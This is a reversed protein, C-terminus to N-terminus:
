RELLAIRGQLFNRVSEDRELGIAVEYAQRAEDLRGARALLEAQVAWYPQYETVRVDVAVLRLAELGVTAGHVEAVALTRNIAVVPSGGLAFLADYLQLVEAWNAQGIRCRHIHASQLAGELQYRGSRGLGSARLLLSEAEDIMEADWLVTDQEALPVYEGRSNRRAGRRAEAYLLLAMLGL